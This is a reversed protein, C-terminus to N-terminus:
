LVLQHIIYKKQPRYSFSNSVSLIDSNKKTEVRMIKGDASCEMIIEHIIIIDNPNKFSKYVKHSTRHLSKGDASLVVQTERREEVEKTANSGKSILAAEKPNIIVSDNWRWWFGDQERSSGFLHLEGEWPLGRESATRRCMQLDEQAITLLVESLEEMKSLDASKFDPLLCEIKCLISKYTEGESAKAVSTEM